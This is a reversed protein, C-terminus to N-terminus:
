LSASGFPSSLPRRESKAKSALKLVLESQANNIEILSKVQGELHHIKGLMQMLIDKLVAENSEFDALAYEGHHEDNFAKNHHVMDNTKIKDALERCTARKACKGVKEKAVQEADRVAKADDFERQEQLLASGSSVGPISAAVAAGRRQAHALADAERLQQASPFRSRMNTDANFNDNYAM